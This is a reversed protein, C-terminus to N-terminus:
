LFDLSYTQLSITQFTQWKRRFLECSSGLDVVLVQTQWLIELTGYGYISSISFVQLWLFQVYDSLFGNGYLLLYVFYEGFCVLSYAFTAFFFDCCSHSLVWFVLAPNQLDVSLSLREPM